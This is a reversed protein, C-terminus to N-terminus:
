GHNDNLKQKCSVMHLLTKFICNIYTVKNQIKWTQLLHTIMTEYNLFFKKFFSIVFFYSVTLTCVQQGKTSQHNNSLCWSLCAERTAWCTFFRGAILSVQTWDRVQSSGRSFPFAVWELIRAQLIGHVYLGHLLLSDSVVSLSVCVCM